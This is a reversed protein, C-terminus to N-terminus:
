IKDVTALARVLVNHAEELVRAHEPIRERDLDTAGTEASGLQELLADVEAGIADPDAFAQADAPASPTQGHHGALHQGPRPIPTNMPTLALRNRPENSTPSRGTLPGFEM